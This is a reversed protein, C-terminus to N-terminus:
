NSLCNHRVTESFQFLRCKRCTRIGCRYSQLKATNPDRSKCYKLACPYWAVCLQIHCMCPKWLDDSAVCSQVPKTTPRKHVSSTLAIIDRNLAALFPNASLKHCIIDFYIDKSSIM